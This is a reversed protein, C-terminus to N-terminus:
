FRGSGPSLIEERHLCGYSHSTRHSPYEELRGQLVELIGLILRLIEPAERVRHNICAKGNAFVAMNSTWISFRAMQDEVTSYRQPDIASTGRLCREFSIFCQRALASIPVARESLSMRSLM